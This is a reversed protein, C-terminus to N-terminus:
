IDIKEFEEFCDLHAYQSPRNQIFVGNKMYGTTVKFANKLDDPYISKQCVLCKKIQHTAFVRKPVLKLKM